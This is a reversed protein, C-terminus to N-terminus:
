GRARSETSGEVFRFTLNIRPAAIAPEKPVGHKFRQQVDGSMVLLSGHKLYLEQKPATTASKKKPVLVFKRTAGLSVSAIVPGLEPEDDSHLGMSDRGDRYLNLLVSNFRAEAAREVRARLELLAPTWPRPINITGSYKYTTDADGYWAVLRPQMHEKGFLVIPKQEWAIEERLVAFFRDADDGALFQEDVRLV